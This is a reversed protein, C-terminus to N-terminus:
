ESTVFIYSDLNKRSNQKIISPGPTPYQDPDTCRDLPEPDQLDLYM